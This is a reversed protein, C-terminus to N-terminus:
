KRMTVALRQRAQLPAPAVLVFTSYQVTSSVKPMHPARILVKPSRVASPLVSRPRQGVAANILDPVCSQRCFRRCHSPDLGYLWIQQLTHSRYHETLLCSMQCDTCSRLTPSHLSSPRLNMINSEKRSMRLRIMYVILILELKILLGLQLPQM